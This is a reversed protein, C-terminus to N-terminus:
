LLGPKKTSDPLTADVSIVFSPRRFSRPSCCANAQANHASLSSRVSFMAQSQLCALLVDMVRIPGPVTREVRKRRRATVGEKGYLDM